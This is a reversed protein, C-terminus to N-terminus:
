SEVPTTAGPLWEDLIRVIEHMAEPIADRVVSSLETTPEIRKPVIGIVGIDSLARGGRELTWLAEELGPDHPSTRV